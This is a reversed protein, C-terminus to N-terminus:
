KLFAEMWYILVAIIGLCLFSAAIMLAIQWKDEQKKAAAKKAKASKKKTNDMTEGDNEAAEPQSLPENLDELILDEESIEVSDEWSLPREDDLLEIPIDALLDDDEMVDALLEKELRELEQKRDDTM